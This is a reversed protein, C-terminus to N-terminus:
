GDGICYLNLDGRIFMRGDVFAPSATIWEDLRSTGSEEFKRDAKVRYTNGEESLLYVWGGALSPSAQFSDEFEHEWCVDGSQADCCTLTGPTSLLFILEGNTVPSCIDPAPFDLMWAVHTDTVDGRGDTRLATLAENPKIVFVMGQAYVASPALDPGLVDARWLEQGTGPDYAIAWPESCTIIQEEEGTDILIPSTWTNAVPRATRWAIAGTKAELAYLM